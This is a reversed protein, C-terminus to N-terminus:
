QALMTLIPKSQATTLSATFSILLLLLGDIGDNEEVAVLTPICEEYKTSKCQPAAAFHGEIQGAIILAHIGSETTISEQEPATTEENNNAETM